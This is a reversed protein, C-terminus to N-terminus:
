PLLWDVKRLKDDIIKGMPHKSFDIKLGEQQAYRLAAKTWRGRVVPSKVWDGSPDGATVMPFHGWDAVALFRDGLERSRKSAEREFDWAQEGKRLLSLLAKRWWLGPKLSCRYPSKRNFVMLRFDHRFPGKATDHDWGPYLRIHDAKRSLIYGAFDLLAETDVPATIWNDSTLWLIVPSKIQRLGKKMRQSWRTHDGGVKVAEGCPPDLDNTIFRVPWPCDPWYRKLGHCLGRWVISYLDLTGVVIVVNTKVVNAGIM